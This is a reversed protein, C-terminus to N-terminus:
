VMFACKSIIAAYLAQALARSYSAAASILSSTRFAGAPATMDLGDLVPPADDYKVVVDALEVAAAAASEPKPPNIDAM